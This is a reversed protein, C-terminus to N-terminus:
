PVKGSETMRRRTIEKTMVGKVIERLEEDSINKTCDAIMQSDRKNLIWSVDRSPTSSPAPPLFPSADIRGLSFYINRIEGKQALSNFQKIINPKLYHLQQMWVSTSVIVFLTKGKIRSPRTQAAIQPGVAKDWLALIRKEELDIPAHRRKLAKQLVQGLPELKKQTARRRM